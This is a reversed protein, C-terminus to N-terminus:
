VAADEKVRVSILLIEVSAWRPISKDELISTYYKCIYCDTTYQYDM